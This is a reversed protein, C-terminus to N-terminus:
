PTIKNNCSPDGTASIILMKPFGSDSVLSSVASEWRFDCLIAPIASFQYFRMQHRGFHSTYGKWLSPVAVAVLFLISFFCWFVRFTMRLWTHFPFKEHITM